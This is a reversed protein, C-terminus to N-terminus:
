IQCCFTEYRRIELGVQVRSVEEETVSKLPNTSSSSSTAADQVLNGPLSSVVLHNDTTSSSTATEQVLWDPLTSVVVTCDYSASVLQSGCLQVPTFISPLGYIASEDDSM